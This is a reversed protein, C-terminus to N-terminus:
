NKLPGSLKTGVRFEQCLNIDRTPIAIIPYVNVTAADTTHKLCIVLYYFNVGINFGDSFTKIYTFVIDGENDKKEFVEDPTDLTEQFCYEYSSYEEFQIDDQRLKIIVDALIKSKKSELLTLFILDEDNESDIMREEPFDNNQLSEEIEHDLNQEGIKWDAVKEGYRFENVLLKSKTITSLFVFSAEKRYVSSVVIATFDTYQKIFHYFTEHLENSQRFVESPALLVQDILDQDSPGLSINEELLNLKSRLAHEIVEYHKILPFYFDEICEESCFGKHSFEDIFLLDDLSNLVKKCESCFYIPSRLNSM